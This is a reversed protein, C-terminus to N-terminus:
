AFRAVISEGELGGGIGKIDVTHVGLEMQLQRVRIFVGRYPLKEFVRVKLHGGDCKALHNTARNERGVGFARTVM